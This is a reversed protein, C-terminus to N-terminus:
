LDVFNNDLSLCSLGREREWKPRIATPICFQYATPIKPDLYNWAEVCKGHMGKGKHQKLTPQCTIMFCVNLDRMPTSSKYLRETIKYKFGISFMDMIGYILHPYRRKLLIADREDRYIGKYYVIINLSLMGRQAWSSPNKNSHFEMIHYKPWSDINPWLLSHSVWINRQEQCLFIERIYWSFM